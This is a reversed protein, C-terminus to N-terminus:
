NKVLTLFEAVPKTNLICVNIETGNKEFKLFFQQLPYNQVTPFTVYCMWVHPVVHDLQQEQLLVM